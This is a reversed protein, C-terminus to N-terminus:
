YYFYMRELVPLRTETRVKLNRSEMERHTPHLLVNRFKESPVALETIFKDYSNLDLSSAKPHVYPCLSAVNEVDVPRRDRKAQAQQTRPRTKRSPSQGFNSWKNSDYDRDTNLPFPSPLRGVNLWLQYHLSKPTAKGTTFTQHRHFSRLDLTV